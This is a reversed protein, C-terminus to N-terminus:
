SLRNITWALTWSSCATMIFLADAYENRSSNVLFYLSVPNLLAFTVRLWARCNLYVLKVRLNNLTELRLLAQDFDAATIRQIDKQKSFGYKFICAVPRLSLYRYLDDWRAPHQRLGNIAAILERLARGEIVTTNFRLQAFTFVFSMLVAIQLLLPQYILGVPCYTLRDFFSDTYCPRVVRVFLLPIFWVLCISSLWIMCRYLDLLFRLPAEIKDTWSAAQNMLNFSYPDM